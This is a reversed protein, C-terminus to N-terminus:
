PRWRAPCRPDFHRYGCVKCRGCQWRVERWYRRLNFRLRRVTM